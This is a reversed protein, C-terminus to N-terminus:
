DDRQVDRKPRCLPSSLSVEYNYGSLFPEGPPVLPQIPALVFLVEVIISHWLRDGAFELRQPHFASYYTKEEEESLIRM